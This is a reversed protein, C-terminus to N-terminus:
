HHENIEQSSLWKNLFKGIAIISTIHSGRDGYKTANAFELTSNYNQDSHAGEKDGVSKILEKITININLLPQDIWDKVEMLSQPGAFKLEFSCFGNEMKISGPQIMFLGDKLSPNNELVETWHLKHLKIGPMARPLLANRDCLLKRLEVSIPRYWEVIGSLFGELNFRLVKLSAIFDRRTKDM